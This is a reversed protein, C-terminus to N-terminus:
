ETHGLLTSKTKFNDKSRKRTKLHVAKNPNFKAPILNRQGEKKFNRLNGESKASSVYM